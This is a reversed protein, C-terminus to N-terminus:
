NKATQPAVGAPMAEYREHEATFLGRGGTVSRLDIAYRTIEATPVTAKIVRQNFEEVDTGHVIGRRSSIDGMVDGMCEEPITVEVESLPELVVPGAEGFAEQFALKGAMKFSFESSDVSHHKGDFVTARLDVVPFGEKDGETMAEHIGAEVAPIYQRPIVGGSIENVFEFGAGRPLPEIRVSAIGFQGHGGSQKKHKGEAEATRTITKRYPVQVDETDVGVGFKREIRKLTMRLHTEGMGSLLTQHTEENRELRLTPDEECARRLAQSLKDEDARTRPNVAVSLMPKPLNLINMSVSTGASSLTDGTLTDSLKAVAAIDGPAVEPLETSESGQLTMIGRLREASKTRTNTFESDNHLTGTITRFVSVTGLYTDIITKFVFLLPDADPDCAITATSVDIKTSTQRPPSTESNTDSNTAGVEGLQIKFGGRDAPSPGIECIYNCLRDVAVPGTASGCVVPFVASNMVGKSLVSELTAFDPIEGELYRELLDDDAVVIGEVLADHTQKEQEEMEQPIEAKEGKGSDYIWAEDTLLDAIGHFEPGEGIPLELPAVGAGFSERMDTIIKDFSVFERDLKNVFIIRPIEAEAAKRWLYLLGHDVGGVADVVLVALDAVALAAAQEGAFDVSGPTDLLNIKHDNWEFSILSMVQSSGTEQEEPSFDSVTTGAEVSGTRPISGARYLMAEVLTTKGSGPPGLLVINRIKSTPYKKM